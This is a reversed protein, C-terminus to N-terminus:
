AGLIPFPAASIGYRVLAGSGGSGGVPYGPAIGAPEGASATPWHKVQQHIREVVVRRPDVKKRQARASVSARNTRYGVSGTRFQGPKSTLIVYM